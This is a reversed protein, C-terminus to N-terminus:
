WNKVVDCATCSTPQGIACCTRFGQCFEVVICNECYYKDCIKCFDLRGGDTEQCHSCFSERCTFCTFNNMGYSGGEHWDILPIIYYEDDEEDSGSEYNEGCIEACIEASCKIQRGHLVTDFNQLFTTLINSKEVRWKKPLHVQILANGEAGIISELIPVVDNVSIPPEPNLTPSKHDGVLSLDIRELLLSGRLPELGTGIIGVCNTLRLSKVKNVADICLLFGRIDFDSLRRGIIDQVDNLDLTEWINPQALIISYCRDLLSFCPPSPEVSALGTAFSLCERQLLYSAVHALLADPLNSM